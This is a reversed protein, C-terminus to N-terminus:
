RESVGGIAGDMIGGNAECLVGVRTWSLIYWFFTSVRSSHHRGRPSVFKVWRGGSSPWLGSGYAASVKAKSVEVVWLIFVLTILLAVFM